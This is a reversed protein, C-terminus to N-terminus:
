RKKEYLLVDRPEASINPHIIYGHKTEVFHMDAKEMVRASARNDIDCFAFVKQFPTSSFVYEIMARAVETAYGKGWHKQALVYGIHPEQNTLALKAMGLIENSSKKNIVFNFENKQEWNELCGELFFLTDEQAFHPKWTLYKTVLPDQAYEDFIALADDLTPKRLVLRHTEVKEPPATKSDLSTM